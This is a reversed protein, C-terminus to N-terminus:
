PLEVRFLNRHSVTRTYAFTDTTSGFAVNPSSLGAAYPNLRVVESGSVTSADAISEVGSPPLVPLSEGKPVPMAVVTDTIGLPKLYMRTGDPSWGVGCVGPCIRRPPGGAIPVAFEAMNQAENVPTNVFAWKRDASMGRLELIPGPLVARRSTADATMVFLRNRHGDSQRFVVEGRSGFFPSDEGSSALRKPPTERNRSALWIESPGSSPRTGFVIWAGDASVDYNTIFFGQVLPESTGSTLDTMWLERSSDTAAHRLTYFLFRGDRSFSLQSAYGEPSVLREGETSHLWVGSEQIGLSTVISRGDPSVAVGRDQAPGSTIQEPEGSPFRQRWMHSAGDIVATFYMWRGDPSWAASLCPGNPGIGTGDSRGDFPVLRCRLWGGNAMEVVLTSKRDPSALGYHAMGREHAPLYVSRLDERRDTATVLGMHLGSKIESFLAHHNDLWSLGAANSLLLRSDGGLVPLSRVTWGHTAEAATYTIESGDSSFAVGYKLVSDHTRQIPEGDPLMKTFVEGSFPFGTDSGVLFALMRGDPSLAPEFAADSFSTLQGYAVSGHAGHAQRTVVVGAAIALVVAGMVAYPTIQVRRRSPLIERPTPTEVNGSASDPVSVDVAIREVPAVFRYGRKPVTEIFHAREASDGLAQRIRGIANNLGHDFEVFTNEGWLRKRLEARTVVNPYQELLITLVEFPQDQVKLKAGNRRLARDELDMEFVGFRYGKM